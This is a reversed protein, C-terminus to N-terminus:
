NQCNIFRVAEHLHSGAQLEIKQEALHITTRSGAALDTSSRSAPMPSVSASYSSRCRKYKLIALAGHGAQQTLNALFISYSHLVCVLLVLVGFLGLQASSFHCNPSM